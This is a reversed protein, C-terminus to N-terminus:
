NVILLKYYPQLNTEKHLRSIVKFEKDIMNEKIENLAIYFGRTNNAPTKDNEKLAQNLLPFLNRNNSVEYIDPQRTEKMSYSVNIIQNLPNIKIINGNGDRKKIVFKTLIEFNLTITVEHNRKGKRIDSVELCKIKIPEGHKELCEFFLGKNFEKTPEPILEM